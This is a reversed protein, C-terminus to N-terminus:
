GKYQWHWEAVDGSGTDVYGNDEKNHHKRVETILLCIIM